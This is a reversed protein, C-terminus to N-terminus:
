ADLEAKLAAELVAVRRELDAVRVALEDNGSRGGAAVVRDGASATGGGSSAAREAAGTARARPRLRAEDNGLTHRWRDQSQGPARGLNVVLPSPREALARLAADVSAHDTPVRYREIRARLEGPTQAGRLMLVALLALELEGVGLARQLQHRHKPVRDSLEQVTAAFGRERLNFAAEQVEQLHYDSIPDRSTRQNCATALAQSSLPYADPTTREKEVLAGLVRVEVDSLPM